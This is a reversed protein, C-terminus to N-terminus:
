FVALLVADFTIFSTGGRCEMLGEKQKKKKKPPPTPHPHHYHICLVCVPCAHPPPTPPTTLILRSQQVSGEKWGQLYQSCHLDSAPFVLTGSPTLPLVTTPLHPYSIKHPALLLPGPPELPSVSPGQAERGFWQTASHPCTSVPLNLPFWFMSTLDYLLLPLPPLLPPSSTLLSVVVSTWLCCEDSHLGGSTVNIGFVYEASLKRRDFNHKQQSQEKEQIQVQIRKPQCVKSFAESDTSFLARSLQPLPM